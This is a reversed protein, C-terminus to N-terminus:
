GRSSRVLFFALASILAAGGIWVYIPVGGGGGDDPVTTTTTTAPETTTTALTTTAALTTTTAAVTTTPAVTTTTTPPLTTTTTTTTSTTTTTTTPQTALVTYARADNMMCHELDYDGVFWNSATPADMPITFTVKFYGNGNSMGGGGTQEVGNFNAYIYSNPYLNFGEITATAGRWGPNPLIRFTCHNDALAVGPLSMAVAVLALALRRFARSKM